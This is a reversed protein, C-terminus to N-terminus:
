HSFRTTTSISSPKIACWFIYKSCVIKFLILFILYFLYFSLFLCFFIYQIFPIEELQISVVIIMIIVIIQFVMMEKFQSLLEKNHRDCHNPFFFFFHIKNRKFFFSFLFFFWFRSLNKLLLHYNILLFLLNLGFLLILAFIKSQRKM